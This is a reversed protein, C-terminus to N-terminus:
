CKRRDEGRNEDWKACPCDESRMKREEPSPPLNMHSAHRLYSMVHTLCTSNAGPHHAPAAPDSPALDPAGVVEAARELLLAASAGRGLLHGQPRGLFRKRLRQLTKM